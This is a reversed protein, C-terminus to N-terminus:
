LRQYSRRRRAALRERRAELADVEVGLVVERELVRHQERRQPHVVVLRRRQALHADHRRIEVDQDVAADPVPAGDVVRRHLVRHEEDHAVDAALAGGLQGVHQALPEVGLRSVKALLSRKRRCPM